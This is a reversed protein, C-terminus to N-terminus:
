INNGNIREKLFFSALFEVRESLDFWRQERGEVFQVYCESCCDYKNTYYDDSLSFSYEHCTPCVRDSEKNLLKKSILFGDKEVKGSTDKRKNKQETLEKIQKLYNNEKEKTWNSRPNQIAEQGYKKAIAKELKAIYNLDKKM